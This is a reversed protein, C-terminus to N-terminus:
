ASLSPRKAAEPATAPLIAPLWPASEPRADRVVPGLEVIIWGLSPRYGHGFGQQCDVDPLVAMETLLQHLGQLGPSLTM